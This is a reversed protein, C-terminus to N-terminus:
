KDYFDARGEETELLKFISNLRDLVEQRSKHRAIMGNPFTYTYNPDPEDKIEVSPIPIIDEGDLFVNSLGPRNPNERVEIRPDIKKLEEIFDTTKM